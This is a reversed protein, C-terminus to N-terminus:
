PGLAQRAELLFEDFLRQFNEEIYAKLKPTWAICELKYNDAVGDAGHDELRIVCPTDLIVLIRM